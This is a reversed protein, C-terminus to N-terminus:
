KLGFFKRISALVGKGPASEAATSAESFEDLVQKREEVMRCISDVLEPNAEFIPKLASKNIQLVQTEEAAVVTATRPEGTLLSMEGFYDSERLTNVTKTEGGQPVQIDVTGRTIVFMSNGERGRRVIAEGPAFIRDKSARALKHLEEDSLPTFIPIRSLREVTSDLVEDEPQETDAGHMFVTRTPYSFHINERLFAYWIRQRILADTDNFRKYDEAWYKVEWDIGSDGFNRIRVVPRIKASVNDVQRVAERVVQITKAPSNGYVTNFFVVRANLNEKPAVEIPRKGLDSNSLILLKNQFTRIRIGRWSVAEVVGGTKNEFTLVDGVQFPQDAQMAIGAFLNGLTDQLALGVVIGIITSGTFLPALQVRPYQSQFIIFFAVVYVIVSIVTRLLTSIESQSGRLATKFLLLAVFRVVAIILAMWLVIKAIHFLNLALGFLTSMMMSPESDNLTRLQDDVIKLEFQGLVYNQLVSEIQPLLILILTVTGAFILFYVSRKQLESPPM